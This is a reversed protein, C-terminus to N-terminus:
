PRGRVVENPRMVVDGESPDRTPLAPTGMAVPRMSSVARRASSLSLGVLVALFSAANGFYSTGLSALVSLGVALAVAYRFRRSFESSQAQVSRALSWWLGAFMLGCLSIIALIGGRLGVAVFNNTIDRMAWGWKAAEGSGLFVWGSFNAMFLDIVQFRHHGTSGSVVNLRSALHFIGRSMLLHVAFFVPIAFFAASRYHHRQSYLCIAVAGIVAVVVGGSSGAAWAGLLGVGIALGGQWSAESRLFAWAIPMLCACAIGADIAHGTTGRARFRGDRVAVEDLSGIVSSVNLGTIWEAVLMMALVCLVSVAFLALAREDKSDRCSAGMVLLPGALDLLHGSAELLGGGGRRTAAGLLTVLSFVMLLTVPGRLGMWFKIIRQWDLAIWLLCAIRVLTLDVGALVIRQSEPILLVIAMLSGGSSRRRMLLLLGFVVVAGPLLSTQEAFRSWSQNNQALYM